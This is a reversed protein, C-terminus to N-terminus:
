AEEMLAVKQVELNLVLRADDEEEAVLRRQLHFIANTSARRLSLLRAKEFGHRVSRASAAGEHSEAQMGCLYLMCAHVCRGEM